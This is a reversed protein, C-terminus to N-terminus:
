IIVEARIGKEPNWIKIGINEMYIEIYTPLITRGVGNSDIIFYDCDFEYFLQKARLCQIVSNIGNMTECYQFKKIYKTGNPILRLIWFATNDNSSSEVLAVDMGLLRIEKSTKEVWFPFDKKHGKYKIYEADSMCVMPRAEQRCESLTNFKYFADTVSREPQVTYEALLLELNEQNEKFSQEVINKSIYGNKVGINYPLAVTFHTTDHPNTMGDVYELFYDYSWEDAGRISSLYLQKNTEEPLADREAKTLDVYAPKRPSTLMPVFVRVIVQKETRVFEDVVLIQGRQGLANESYVMSIIKSGSNFEIASENMGFKTKKDNIELRLNASERAFDQVKKIFRTSQGRTPAVVIITTNPYLICYAICFLLALTSKALGRSAAFIFNPYKFMAYILVKQFDYLTLGLYDTIFRHPNSRWYAAWEEFNEMFRVSRSKDARRRRKIYIKDNRGNEDYAVKTEVKAKEPEKTINIFDNKKTRPM